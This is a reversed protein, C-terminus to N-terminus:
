APQPIQLKRIEVPVDPSQIGLQTHERLFLHCRGQLVRTLKLRPHKEIIKAKRTRGEIPDEQLVRRADPCRLILAIEFFFILVRFNCFRYEM